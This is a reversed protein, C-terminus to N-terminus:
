GGFDDFYIMDDKVGLRALMARVAQIMLPPGCLYYECTEPAPHDKLYHEFAVEHIFGKQDCKETDNGPESLALCYTFNEHRSALDRFEQTYFADTASRAGYWFSIRRNTKKCELQHHIISRLPAMGVGGGIFVMERSTDRAGFTGFPGTIEIFDGPSVAFLYSSVIGPPVTEAQGSPPVALRINLVITDADQPRNALSYARKTSINCNARLGRWGLRMWIEEFAPPIIIESFELAFPPATVQVFSGPRPGFAATEPLRLVVERILPALVTASLVECRFTEATLVEDPVAVSMPGRMVTQCALRMGRRIEAPSLRATETALAPGSGSILRVRCLGCTGAGACASPIELGGEKLATLLKDGRRGQIVTMENVTIKVPGSPMLLARATVVLLTLTLLLLTLLGTSLFVETM